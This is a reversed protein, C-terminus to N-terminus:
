QIGEQYQFRLIVVSNFVIVTMKNHEHHIICILLAWPRIGPALRFYAVPLLHALQVATKTSKPWIVNAQPPLCATGTYSWWKLAKTSLEITVFRLNQCLGRSRLLRVRYIRLAKKM